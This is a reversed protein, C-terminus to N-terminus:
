AENFIYKLDFINELHGVLVGHPGLGSGQGVGHHGVGLVYFVQRHKAGGDLHDRLLVDGDVYRGFCIRYDPIYTTTM